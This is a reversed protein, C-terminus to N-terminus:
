QETLIQILISRKLNFNYFFSNNPTIYGVQRHILVANSYAMIWCGAYQITISPQPNHM